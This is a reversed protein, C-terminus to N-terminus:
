QLNQAQEKIKELEHKMEVVHTVIEVDQSKSGITNIERRFEQIFFDM